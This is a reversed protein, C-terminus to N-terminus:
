KCNIQVDGVHQHPENTINETSCSESSESVCINIESKTESEGSKVSFNRVSNPKNTMLKMSNQFGSLITNKYLIRKGFDFIGKKALYVSSM